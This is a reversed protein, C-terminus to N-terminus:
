VACFSYTCSAMRRTPCATYSPSFTPLCPRYLRIIASMRDRPNFSSCSHCSPLGSRARTLQLRPLAFSFFLEGLWLRGRGYKRIKFRRLNINPPPGFLRYGKLVNRVACAERGAAPRAIESRNLRLHRSPCRTKYKRRQEKRASFVLTGSFFDSYASPLHRQRIPTGPYHNYTCIPNRQSSPRRHNPGCLGERTLVRIRCRARSDM